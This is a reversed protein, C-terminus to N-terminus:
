VHLFAYIRTFDSRRAPHEPSNECSLEPIVIYESKRQSAPVAGMIERTFNICQHSTDCMCRWMWHGATHTYGPMHPAKGPHKINCSLPQLRKGSERNGETRVAHIRDYQVWCVAILLLLWFSTHSPKLDTFILYVKSWERDTYSDWKKLLPIQTHFFPVVVAYLLFIM